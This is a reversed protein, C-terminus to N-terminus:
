AVHGEIHDDAWSDIAFDIGNWRLYGTSQTAGAGICEVVINTGDFDVSIISLAPAAFTGVFEIGAPGYTTGTIVTNVAPYTGRDDEIVPSGYSVIGLDSQKVDLKPSTGVSGGTVAFPGSIDCTNTTGVGDWIYVWVPVLVGAAPVTAAGTITISLQEWAGTTSATDSSEIWSCYPCAPKILKANIDSASRRVYCSVTTAVSPLLKATMTGIVGSYGGMKFPFTSNRLTKSILVNWYGRGSGYGGSTNWQALVGDEYIRNNGVVGDLDEICVTNATNSGFSAETAENITVNKARMLGVGSAITLIGGITNGLTVVDEAYGPGSVVQFGNASGNQALMRYVAGGSPNGLYYAVGITSYAAINNVTCKDSISTLNNVSAAGVVILDIVSNNSQLPFAIGPCGCLSINQLLIDRSVSAGVVQFFAPIGYRSFGFNKFTFYNINTSAQYPVGQGTRGDYFTCGDILGSTPNWGGSITSQTSATGGKSIANLIVTASGAVAETCQNRYRLDYTGTAIGWGRGQSPATGVANDILGTGDQLSQVTHWAQSTDEEATEWLGDGSPQLHKIGWTPETSGSTHNTLCRMLMARCAPATPCVITGATYVTSPAWTSYLPTHAILSNLSFDNVALINDVYINITGPDSIAYLAVSNINSGLAGVNDITIPGGVPTPFAPVNLSNVPTAGLADSCLDVRIVGAAIANNNFIQLSIKSYASLNLAGTAKYAIKGTTFGAAVQLLVAAAGEKWAGVTAPYSATVNASATWGSECNDIVKVLGAPFTFSKSGMTMSVGTALAVPDPSKAVRLDDGTSFATMASATTLKALAWTSGDNADSGPTGGDVCGLPKLYKIAM